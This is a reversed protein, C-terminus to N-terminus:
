CGFIKERATFGLWEYEDAYTYQEGAANMGSVQSRTSSSSTPGGPPDAGQARLPERVGAVAHIRAHIRARALEGEFPGVDVDVSVSHSPDLPQM